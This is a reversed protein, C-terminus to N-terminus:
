SEDRKRVQAWKSQEEGTGAAERATGVTPQVHRASKRPKQSLRGKRRAHRGLKGNRHAPPGHGFTQRNLYRWGKTEGADMAARPRGTSSARLRSPIKHLGRKNASRDVCGM